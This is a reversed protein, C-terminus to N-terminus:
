NPKATHKELRKKILHFPLEGGELLFSHFEKSGMQAEFDKKLCTIEYAGLSYCLQYGPNLKFRDIQRRAEETSFGCSTLLSMAKDITVTDTALGVDIMCRASRWLKRKHDILIELPNQIYGSEMLLSEVYSAWGEYFLPSEIQRRVPNEIERRSSDLLHHGPITEHATLLKYERHLRKKLLLDADETNAHPLRTTLYFFSKERIDQSFAAAFSATGRVSRLYVPTEAIVLPAKLSPALFGHVSFFSRLQEIEHSYLNFIEMKDVETPLFAHYLDQWSKNPDIQQQLMDLQGSLQEWESEAIEFIEFPKRVSLFHAELSEGLTASAFTSDQIPHLKHLFAKLAKLALVANEITKSYTDSAPVTNRIMELYYNCDDIMRMSASHYSRPVSVLNEIAQSFLRPIFSLRSHLREFQENADQAPKTLAHDLGIFAIKLYLLPNYRWSRKTDLEILIGAANAQLCEYDIHRELDSEQAALCSFEDRYKKNETTTEAIHLADFDEMLHYFKCATEARPLFHFEDSACMVPFKVALFRFYGEVLKEYRGKDTM